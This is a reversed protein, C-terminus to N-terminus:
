LYMIQLYNKLSHENWQLNNIHLWTNYFAIYFMQIWFPNENLKMHITRIRILSFGFVTVLQLVNEKYVYFCILLIIVFPNLMNRIVLQIMNYLFFSIKQFFVGLVGFCWFKTPIGFVHHISNTQKLWLVQSLSQLFSHKYLIQHFDTSFQLNFPANIYYVCM